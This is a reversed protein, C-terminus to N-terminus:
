VVNSTNTVTNIHLTILRLWSGTKELKKGHFVFAMAGAKVRVRSVHLIHHAGLLALLHSIPNLEANLPNVVNLSNGSLSLGGSSITQATLVYSSSACKM